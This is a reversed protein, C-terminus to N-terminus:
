KLSMQSVKASTNVRDTIVCVTWIDWELIALFTLSERLSTVQATVSNDFYSELVTHTIRTATEHYRCLFPTRPAPGFKTIPKFM